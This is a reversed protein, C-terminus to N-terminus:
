FNALHFFGVHKLFTKHFGCLCKPKQKRIKLKFSELSKSNKITEPVISWIKPTIYSITEKGYRM